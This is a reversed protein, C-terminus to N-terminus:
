CTDSSTRFVSILTPQCSCLRHSLLRRSSYACAGLWGHIARPTVLSSAPTDRPAVGRSAPAPRRQVSPEDARRGTRLRPWYAFRRQGARHRLSVLLLSARVPRFGLVPSATEIDGDINGVNLAPFVSFSATFAPVPHRLQLALRGRM